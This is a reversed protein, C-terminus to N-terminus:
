TKFISEMIIKQDESFKKQTFEDFTWKKSDMAIRKMKILDQRVVERIDENDTAIIWRTSNMRDQEAQATLFKTMLSSERLIRRYDNNATEDLM